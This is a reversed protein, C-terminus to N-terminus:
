ACRSGRQSGSRSDEIEIVAETPHRGLIQGPQEPRGSFASLYLSATSRRFCSGMELTAIPEQKRLLVLHLHPAGLEGAAAREGAGARCLIKGQDSSLMTVALASGDRAELVSKLLTEFDHVYRNVHEAFDADEHYIKRITRTDSFSMCRSRAGRSFAKIARSIPLGNARASTMAWGNPCTSPAATSCRSSSARASPSCARPGADRDQPGIRGAAPRARRQDRATGQAAHRARRGSRQRGQRGHNAAETLRELQKDVTEQVAMQVAGSSADGLQAAAQPIVDMIADRAKSAAADATEACACWRRSWKRGPRLRRSQRYQRQRNSDRWGISRGQAKQDALATQSRAMAGDLTAALDATLRSTEEMRGAVSNAVAEVGEIGPVADAIRQRMAAIRAEVRTIAGPVAEDLERVGSDLVVLLAEARKILQESSQGGTDLADTLRRTETSLEMMATGLRETRSFAPSRWRM